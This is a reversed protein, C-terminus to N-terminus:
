LPVLRLHKLCAGHDRDVLRNRASAASTEPLLPSWLETSRHSARPHRRGAIASAPLVSWGKM